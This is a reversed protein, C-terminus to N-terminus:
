CPRWATARRCWPSGRLPHRGSVTSRNARSGHSTGADPLVIGAMASLLTTKGAGSHGVVAVVEGTRVRLDIGALATVSGFRVVVGEVDVAREPM